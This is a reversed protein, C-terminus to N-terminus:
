NGSAYNECHKPIFVLCIFYTPLVRVVEVKAVVEEEMLDMIAIDCSSKDENGWNRVKCNFYIGELITASLAFADIAGDFRSLDISKALSEVM